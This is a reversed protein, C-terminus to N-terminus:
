WALYPIYTGGYSEGSLFLDNSVYEPFESYFLQLAAFGDKSSSTDSHNMEKQTKAYSFGVGSPQELYLVNAKKNWPFPNRKMWTEGDDM